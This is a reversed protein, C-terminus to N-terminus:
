SQPYAKYGSLVLQIRYANASDLNSFQFKQTSRAPFLRPTPLIYPLEGTGFIASIGVAQSQLERGSATDTIQVTAIPIVRSSDTQAADAITAFYSAKQWIFDADAQINLQVTAVGSAALSSAEVIYSYFDRGIYRRGGIMFVGDAGAAGNGPAQGLHM